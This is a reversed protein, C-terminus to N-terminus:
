LCPCFIEEMQNASFSYSRILFVDLICYMNIFDSFIHSYYFKLVFSWLHENASDKIMEESIVWAYQSPSLCDVNCLGSLSCLLSFFDNM